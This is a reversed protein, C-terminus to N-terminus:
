SRKHIQLLALHKSKKADNEVPNKARKTMLMAEM